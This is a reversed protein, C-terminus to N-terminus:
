RELQDGSMADAVQSHVVHGRVGAYALRRDITAVSRLVLEDGGGDRREDALDANGVGTGCAAVEEREHLAGDVDVAAGDLRPHHRSEDVGHATLGLQGAEDARAEQGVAAGRQAGDELPSDLTAVQAGVVVALEREVHEASREEIPEQDRAARDVLRECVADDLQDEAAERRSCWVAVVGRTGLVFTSSSCGRWGSRFRPTSSWGAHRLPGGCAGGAACAARSRTTPAHGPSRWDDSGGASLRRSRGVPRPMVANVVLTCM